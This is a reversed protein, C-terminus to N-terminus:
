FILKFVVLRLTMIISFSGIVILFFRGITKMVPIHVLRLEDILIACWILASLVTYLVITYYFSLNGSKALVYVIGESVVILLHYILIRHQKSKTNFITTLPTGIFTLIYLLVLIQSAQGAGGWESGLLLKMLIDGFGFIIAFPIVGVYLLKNFLSLTLESLENEKGTIYLEASTKYYVNGIAAGIITAPTGVTYLARQFFGVQRPLFLASIIIIPLQSALANLLAGPLAYCPFNKHVRAQKIIGKWSSASLSFQAFKKQLYLLVICYVIQALTNSILLAIVRNRFAIAFVLNMVFTVCTNVVTATSLSKYCKARNCWSYNTASLTSVFIQVPLLLVFLFSLISRENLQLFWIIGALLTILVCVTSFLLTVAWTNSADTDNEDLVLAQSYQGSSVVAM